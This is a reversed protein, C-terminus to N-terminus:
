KRAQRSGITGQIVEIIARELGGTLLITYGAL